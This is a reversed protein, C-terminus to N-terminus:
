CDSAEEEPAIDDDSADVMGCVDAADDYRDFMLAEGNVIVRYFLKTKGDPQQVPVTDIALERSPGAREM